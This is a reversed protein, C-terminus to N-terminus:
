HEKVPLRSTPIGNILLKLAPAIMRFMFAATDTERRKARIHGPPLLHPSLPEASSKDPLRAECMNDKEGSRNNPRILSVM